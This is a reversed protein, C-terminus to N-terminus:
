LGCVKRNPGVQKLSQRYGMDENNEKKEKLDVFRPMNRSERLYLNTTSKEFEVPLKEEIWTGQLYSYKLYIECVPDISLITLVVPKGNKIDLILPSEPWTQPSNKTSRWEIQQGSSDPNTFRIRYEKPKVGPSTVIEGGGGVWVTEREVVIVRGDSLQVEERWKETGACRMCGFLCMIATGLALISFILLLTRQKGM